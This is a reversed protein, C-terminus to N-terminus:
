LVGVFDGLVQLWTNRVVGRGVYATENVLPMCGVIAAFDNLCKTRSDSHGPKRSIGVAPNANIYAHHGQVLLPGSRTVMSAAFNLAIDECNFNDNVYQRLQTMVADESHYIELFAIHSFALNTLVMSYVDQGAQRSCSSYEWRGATVETACRPLAGTLRNQGFKRWTQFVFELDSPHYYVDDDSLLIATTRYEPDPWLKQNLSNRPSARYRVPVGHQSVYSQPPKTDVNNWVVVVEHLSPIKTTLLIDLTKKLETPRRYTQIGISRM